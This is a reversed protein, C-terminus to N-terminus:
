QETMITPKQQQYVNFLQAKSTKQLIKSIGTNKYVLNPSYWNEFLTADTVNTGDSIKSKEVMVICLAKQNKNSLGSDKLLVVV